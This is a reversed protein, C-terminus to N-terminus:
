DKGWLGSLRNQLIRNQFHRKKISIKRYRILEQIKFYKEKKKKLVLNIKIICINIMLFTMTLNLM